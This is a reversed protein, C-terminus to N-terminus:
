KLFMLVSAIAFFYAFGGILAPRLLEFTQRLESNFEELESIIPPFGHIENISQM